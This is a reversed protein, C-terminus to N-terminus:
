AMGKTIKIFGPINKKCACCISSSSMRTPVVGNISVRCYSIKSNRGKKQSVKGWVLYQTKYNLDVFLFNRSDKTLFIKFLV